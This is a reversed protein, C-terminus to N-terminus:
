SSVCDVYLDPIWFECIVGLWPVSTFLDWVIMGALRSTPLAMVLPSMSAAGCSITLIGAIVPEFSGGFPVFPEAEREFAFAFASCAFDEGGASFAITDDFSMEFGRANSVWIDFAPKFAGLGLAIELGEGSGDLLEGETDDRLLRELEPEPDSVDATDLFLEFDIAVLLPRLEPESLSLSLLATDFDLLAVPLDLDREELPDDELYEDADAADLDDLFDATEAADERFDFLDLRRPDLETAEDDRADDRADDAEPDLLDLLEAEGDDSLRFDLFDDLEFDSAALSESLSL